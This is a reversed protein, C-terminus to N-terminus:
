DVPLSVVWNGDHIHALSADGDFPMVVEGALFDEELLSARNKARSREALMQVPKFRLLPDREPLARKWAVHRRRSWGRLCGLAPLSM